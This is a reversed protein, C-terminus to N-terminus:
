CTMPYFPLPLALTADAVAPQSDFFVIKHAPLVLTLLNSATKVTMTPPVGSFLYSARNCYWGVGAGDIYLIRVM